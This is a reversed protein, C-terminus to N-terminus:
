FSLRKIKIFPLYKSYFTNFYNGITPFLLGQFRKARIQSSRILELQIFLLEEFKLRYQALKLTNLDRPFHVTVLAQYLPMLHYNNLLYDPLTDPIEENGIARILELEIKQIAKSNLFGNKMKETTNYLGQLGGLSLKAQAEAVTEMEPHALTARGNFFTPKGFAVYEHGEKYAEQAFKVGKFWVLEMSSVGDSFLAKLRQKRGEGELKMRLIRGRVQVYSSAETLEAIPYFKSRDIYRYPFYYLMDEYSSVNIEKKLMDARKPGVGHLYM